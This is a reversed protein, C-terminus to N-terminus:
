CSRPSISTTSNRNSASLRTRQRMLIISKRQRHLSRRRIQALTSMLVDERSRVHVLSRVDIIARGKKRNLLGTWVTSPRNSTGSFPLISERVCDFHLTHSSILSTSPSTAVRG